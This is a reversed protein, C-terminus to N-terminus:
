FNFVKSPAKKFWYAIAESRYTDRVITVNDAKWQKLYAGSGYQPWHLKDLKTPDHCNVFSLLSRQMPQHLADVLTSSNRQITNGFYYVLDSGHYAGRKDATGLDIQRDIYSWTASKRKGATELSVLSSLFHRRQAQFAYDGFLAALRKFQNTTPSALPYSANATAQSGNTALQTYPSGLTV